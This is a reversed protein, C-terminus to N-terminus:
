CKQIQDMSQNLAWSIKYIKVLFLLCIKDDIEFIYCSDHVLHKIDFKNLNQKHLINQLCFFNKPTAGPGM